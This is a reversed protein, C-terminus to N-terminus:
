VQELHRHGVYPEQSLKSPDSHHFAAQHLKALNNDAGDHGHKAVNPEFNAFAFEDM